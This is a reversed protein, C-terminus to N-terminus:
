SITTHPLTVMVWIASPISGSGSAIAGNMM